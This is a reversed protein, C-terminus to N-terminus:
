LSRLVDAAATELLPMFHAPDRELAHGLEADYAKLDQLRVVLSGGGRELADRYVCTEVSLSADEAASLDKFNRVFDRFSNEARGRLNAPEEDEVLTLYEQNSYFM